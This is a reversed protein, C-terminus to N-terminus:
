ARAEMYLRVLKACEDDIQAKAGKDWGDDSYRYSDREREDLYDLLDQLREVPKMGDRGLSEFPSPCSCGADDAVYFAGTTADQWLVSTDFEYAGSSFEAEGITRLGFKEPSYYPNSDWSM